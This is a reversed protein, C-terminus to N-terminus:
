YALVSQNCLSIAFLSPFLFLFFVLSLQPVLFQNCFHSLVLFFLVFCLQPSEGEREREREREGVWGDVWGGDFKELNNIILKFLKM